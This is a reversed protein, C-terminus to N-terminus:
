LLVALMTHRAETFHRPGRVSVGALRGHEIRSACFMAVPQEAARAIRILLAEMSVDFRERLSLISVMDLSLTRTDPLSGFPMLLEAAAINCIAQLLWEDATL